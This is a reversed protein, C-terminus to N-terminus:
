IQETSAFCNSSIVLVPCNAHHVTHQATSGLFLRKLGKHGRTGVILLDADIERAVKEIELDPIGKVVRIDYKANDGISERATRNLFDTPDDIETPPIAPVLDLAPSGAVTSSQLQVVHLITLTAGFRRAAEAAM